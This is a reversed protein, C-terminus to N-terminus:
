YPGMSDRGRGGEGGGGRAREIEREGREGERGGERGRGGQRVKEAGKRMRDGCIGTCMGGSREWGCDVTCSGIYGVYAWWNGNGCQEQWAIM